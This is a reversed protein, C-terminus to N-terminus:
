ILRNTSKLPPSDCVHPQHFEAFETVLIIKANSPLALNTLSRRKVDDITPLLEWFESSLTRFTREAFHIRWRFWLRSSSRFIVASLSLSLLCAFCIYSTYHFCVVFYAHPHHKKLKWPSKEGLLENRLRNKSKRERANSSTPQVKCLYSSVWSLALKFRQSPVESVRQTFEM